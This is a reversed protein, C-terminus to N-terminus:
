CTWLTAFWSADHFVESSGLKLSKLHPTEKILDEVQMFMPKRLFHPEKEHFELFKRERKEQREVREVEGPKYSIDASTASKPEDVVVDLVESCLEKKKSLLPKNYCLFLSSLTPLLTFVESGM